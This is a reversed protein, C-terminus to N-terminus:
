LLRVARDVAKKYEESRHRDSIGQQTQNSEETAERALEAQVHDLWRRCGKSVQSWAACKEFAKIALSRREEYYHSMAIIQWAYGEDEGLKGRELAQTCYTRAKKWLGERYASRCLTLWESGSSSLQAAQLYASNASNWDRAQSFADGLLKWREAGSDANYGEVLRKLVMAGKHPYDHYRYMQALHELETAKRLLGNRYAISRVALADLERGLEQYVASLQRYYDPRDPWIIVMEELLARASDFNALQLRIALLLRYWEQRPETRDDSKHLEMGQEAYSLATSLAESLAYVQAATFFAQADPRDNLEFWQELFDISKQYQETYAYLNALGYILELESSLDLVQMGLARLNSAIAQEYDGSQVGIFARMQLAKAKDYDSYRGGKIVEELLDNALTNEKRDLAEQAKSITQYGKHSLVRAVRRNDQKQQTQDEDIAAFAAPELGGIIVLILTTSIISRVNVM